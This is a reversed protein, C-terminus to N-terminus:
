LGIIENLSVPASTPKAKADKGGAGAAAGAGGAGGAGAQKGGTAEWKEANLDNENWEIWLPLKQRKAAQEGGSASTARNLNSLNNMLNSATVHHATASPLVSISVTMDSVHSQKMTLHAMSPSSSSSNSHTASHNTNTRSHSHHHHHHHHHHHQSNQHSHSSNNM